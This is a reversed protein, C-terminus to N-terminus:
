LKNLKTLEIHQKQARLSHIEEDDFNVVKDVLENVEIELKENEKLINNLKQENEDSDMLNQEYNKIISYYKKVQGLLGGEKISKEKQECLKKDINIESFTQKNSKLAINLDKEMEIQRELEIVKMWLSRFLEKGQEVSKIPEQLM